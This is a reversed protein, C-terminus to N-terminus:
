REDDSQRRRTRSGHTSLEEPEPQEERELRGEHDLGNATRAHAMEGSSEQRHATACRLVPPSHFRFYIKQISFGSKVSVTEIRLRTSTNACIRSGAVAASRHGRRAYM